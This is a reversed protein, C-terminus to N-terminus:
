SGRYPRPKPIWKSTFRGGCSLWARSCEPLDTPGPITRISAFLGGDELEFGSLEPAAGRRAPGTVTVFRSVIANSNAM